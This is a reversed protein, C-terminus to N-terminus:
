PSKATITQFWVTPVLLMIQCLGERLDPDTPHNPTFVVAVYISVSPSRKLYLARSSVVYNSVFM